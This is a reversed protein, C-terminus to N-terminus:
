LSHGPLTRDGIEAKEAKEAKEAFVIVECFPSKSPYQKRKEAKEAKEAKELDEGNLTQSQNESHLLDEGPRRWDFVIVECFSSKSPYQKRKEM